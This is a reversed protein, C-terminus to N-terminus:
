WSEFNRPVHRESSSLTCHMYLTGVPPVIDGGYLYLGQGPCVPLEPVFQGPGVLDDLLSVEPILQSLDQGPEYGKLNSYGRVSMQMQRINVICRARETGKKWVGGAVMLLSVLGLLVLLVVTTELLTM